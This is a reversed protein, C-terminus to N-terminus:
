KSYTFVCQTLVDLLPYTHPAVDDTQLCVNQYWTDSMECGITGETALIFIPLCVIKWLGSSAMTNTM